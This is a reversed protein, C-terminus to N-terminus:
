SKFNLMAHNIEIGTQSNERNAIVQEKTPPEFVCSFIKMRLLAPM